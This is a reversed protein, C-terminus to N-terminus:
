EETHAGPETASVAAAEVTVPPLREGWSPRIGASVEVRTTQAAREITIRAGEPALTASAQRVHEIPDGRAAARAGARAADVCDLQAGVVAIAWLAAGLVVM